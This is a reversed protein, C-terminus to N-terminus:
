ASDTLRVLYGGYYGSSDNRYELVIDGKTTEFHTQYVQLCEYNEIVEPDTEDPGYGDNIGVVKAGAIDDPVTLHEIWSKSCCEGEVGFAVDPGEQFHITFQEKDGSLEVSAIKRGGINAFKDGYGSLCDIARALGPFEQNAM